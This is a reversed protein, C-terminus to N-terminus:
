APTRTRRTPSTGHCLRASIRTTRRSEATEKGSATENMSLTNHQSFFGFFPVLTERASSCPHSFIKRTARFRGKSSPMKNLSTLLFLSWRTPCDRRTMFRAHRTVARWRSDAALLHRYVKPRRPFRGEPVSALPEACGRARRRSPRGADRRIRTRPRPLPEARRRPARARRRPASRSASSIGQQRVFRTSFYRSGM